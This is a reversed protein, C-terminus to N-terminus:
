GEQKENVVEEGIIEMADTYQELLFVAQFRGLEGQFRLYTLLPSKQKLLIIRLFIDVLLSSFIFRFLSFTISGCSLHLDSVSQL